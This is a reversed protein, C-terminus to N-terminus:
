RKAVRVTRVAGASAGATAGPAADDIRKLDRFAAFLWSRMGVVLTYARRQEAPLKQDALHQQAFDQGIRQLREVFTAALSKGIDGHVLMLLEGDGDFGGSYYDDVVHRRFYAMVPGHPRWRFGKAVKLRYRNLPRLEIIGLRDLQVLYKVCEADGIAYADTIQEFTWQSLCCIAMLLLKRDAVVAAEQEASLERRAPQADVVKRALEAFDMHLVRLVEDIRSLPMDGKAFIRKISSESLGLSRALEAYTVDASRLEAKLATVLDQTTSM